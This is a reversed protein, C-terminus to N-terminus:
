NRRRSGGSSSGGSPAGHSRGGGGSPASFSRQHGGGAPASFSKRSGGGGGPSSFSRQRGSGEGPSASSKQRNAPPSFSRQRSSGEGPSSFSRSPTSRDAPKNYERPASSERERPEFQRTARNGSADSRDISNRFSSRSSGGSSGITSRERAPRSNLNSTRERMDSAPPAYRSARQSDFGRNRSNGNTGRSGNYAGNGSGSRSRSKNYGDTRSYGSSRDSRRSYSVNRSSRYHDIQNHHRNYVIVSTSRYPRYLRPAYYVRHSYCMSYYPRYPAWYPYYVHWALPRWPRWWGPYYSWYWPSVWTVYAPGYIYQVSPWAWVNVVTRSTTVGANVRVEQTPEIITEIGYIDADGIIQLVATGDSRKELEIVAIDQAETSSILAQMTFTHIDGDARDIVRIYDIEGDGNLDLNNVKSDNSNLLREFEQPSASKKFLELAGELSFNDGPVEESPDTQIGAIAVTGLLFLAALLGFRFQTKM